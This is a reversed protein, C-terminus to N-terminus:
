ATGSTGGALCAGDLFSAREAADRRSAEHFLNEIESLREADM